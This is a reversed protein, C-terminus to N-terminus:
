ARFRDVGGRGERRPHQALVRQQRVPFATRHDARLAVDGPHARGAPVGVGHEGGHDAAPSDVGDGRGLHPVHPAAVVLRAAQDPAAPPDGAVAHDLAPFRRGEGAVDAPHHHQAPDDGTAASGPDAHQQFRPDAEATM